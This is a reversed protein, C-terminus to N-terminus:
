ERARQHRDRADHAHRFYAKLAVSGGDELVVRFVRNNRGGSMPEVAAPASSGAEECLRAAAALLGANRNDITM